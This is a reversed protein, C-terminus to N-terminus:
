ENEVPKEIVAEGKVKGVDRLSKPLFLTFICAVVCGIAVFLFLLGAGGNPNFFFAFFDNIGSIIKGIIKTFFNETVPNYMIQYNAQISKVNIWILGTAIASIGASFLGQVAFYMAPHSVGTKKKEDVSIQSPIVYSVSFFSGIGFSCIFSAAISVILRATDNPIITPRCFVGILMGISFMILSYRFAFRFGKKKSIFNYLILTFPVPGFGAINCLTVKFGEFGMTGSYYVNFGTLYMSLGFQLAAYIVMWLIFDKNKLTYFLSKLMKPAEEKQAEEDEPHEAKYLAVDKDLTSREKLLVFPIIMSAMLTFSAIALIRINFNGVMMPVLAYGLVFYIIDVTSKVNSLYVRDVENKTVESFTAYYTVMTLTYFTYFAALWFGFWITNFVSQDKVPTILFMFFALTMLAIGVLLAPRRNGWKTKLRDTWSGLPIDIIGDIIKSIFVFISWLGIVVLTKNLYTWNEVNKEFGEVMLADCLYSGVMLNLMNPGIGAIGYWTLQLKSLKKM